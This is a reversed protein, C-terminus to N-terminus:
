ISGAAHVKAIWKYLYFIMPTKGTNTIGQLTNGACYMIAGPGVQVIKGACEIEGTGDSVILFEEEPHRHPPHPSAGPALVAMGACIGELQDTPGNYHTFVQSGEMSTNAVNTLDLVGDRLKPSTTAVTVANDREPM